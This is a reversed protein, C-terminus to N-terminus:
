PNSPIARKDLVDLLVYLLGCGAAAYILFMSVSSSFEYAPQGSFAIHLIGHIVLFASAVLRTKARVNPSLSAVLAVIIAFIPVHALLFIDAGFDDTLGRLVPMVRWEHNPMADLEHTFLLGLGSYFILNKM